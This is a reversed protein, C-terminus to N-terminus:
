VSLYKFVKFLKMIFYKSHGRIRSVFRLMVLAIYVLDVPLYLNFPSISLAIESFDHVLCSQGSEGYTNLITSSNKAVPTLFSFFILPRYVPFFSSLIDSNLSSIISCM